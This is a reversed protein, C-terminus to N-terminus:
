HEDQSSPLTLVHRIAESAPQGDRVLEIPRRGAIDQVDLRAGRSRLLQIAAKRYRQFGAALIHLPTQGEANTINPDAGGDLLTRIMRKYVQTYPRAAVHLPAEGNSAKRNVDAGRNILLLAADVDDQSHHRVIIHLPTWGVPYYQPPAVTARVPANPDAGHDLLWTLSEMGYRCSEAIWHLPHRGTDDWVNIEAGAELLVRAKPLRSDFGAAVSLPTIGGSGRSNPDDGAEIRARVDEATGEYVAYFLEFASGYLARLRERYEPTGSLMPNTGQRTWATM